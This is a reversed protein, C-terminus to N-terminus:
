EGLRKRFELVADSACDMRACEALLGLDLGPLVKSETSADYHEAAGDWVFIELHDRRWIWLEPVPFKRFFARKSLGGSTLAVEIVLDSVPKREGFCYAEDPEGGAEGERLMTMNGRIFFRIGRHFCWTELLRGLHSKREEHEESVPPMIELEHDIYRVRVGSGSFLEEISQYQEWTYGPLVLPSQEPRLVAMTILTNM